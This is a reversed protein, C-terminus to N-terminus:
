ALLPQGVVDGLVDEDLERRAMTSNELCGPLCEPLVVVLDVEVLDMVLELAVM